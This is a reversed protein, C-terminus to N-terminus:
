MLCFDSPSSARGDFMALLRRQRMKQTEFRIGHPHYSTDVRHYRHELGTLSQYPRVSTSRSHHSPILVQHNQRLPVYHRQTSVRLISWTLVETIDNQLPYFLEPHLVEVVEGVFGRAADTREGVGGGGFPEGASTEQQNGLPATPEGTWSTATTLGKLKAKM